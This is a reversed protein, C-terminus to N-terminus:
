STRATVVEALHRLTPIAHPHFPATDLVRHAQERRDRIMAEIEIRAGTTTLIERVTAAGHEDLAPNGVLRNLTAAQAPTAHRRALALLVTAKGQRLDNLVPKGTQLPDGFVGLLDDRLQFAEGLPIGYGSCARLVETTAGALAAGLQLPREVTYKASKYRIVSLAAEVDTLQSTTLLDLYQGYVIETRMADLVPLAGALQTPTLGATHLIEDSFVLALDGLLIAGSVGVQDADPREAHLTALAQHVTPHGRRTDSADMIDDHILAFAHFLELSAGVTIIQPCDRGGAGRWGWYCLLPRLRKGGCLVFRRLIDFVNGMVLPDAFIRGRCDFFGALVADVRQVVPLCSHDTGSHPGPSTLLLGYEGHSSVM